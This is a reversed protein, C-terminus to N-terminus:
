IKGNNGLCILVNNRSDTMGMEGSEVYSLGYKWEARQRETGIFGALVSPKLLREREEQKFRILGSCRYGKKGSLNETVTIAARVSNARNSNFIGHKRGWFICGPMNDFSLIFGNSDDMAMRLSRFRDGGIFSCPTIIVSSRSNRIIKEMFASYLEMSDKLVETAEWCGNITKVRAYPPNSIVKCDDPLSTDKDLFDGVRCHIKGAADKGYIAGIIGRCIKLATGDSDYLYEVKYSRGNENWHSCFLRKLGLTKFNDKFVRWYASTEDDCNCYVTQGVFQGEYFCIEKEVDERMTYFCDKRAKKAQNLGANKM